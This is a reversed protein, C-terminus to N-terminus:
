ASSPRRRAVRDAVARLSGDIPRTFTLWTGDPSPCCARRRAAADRRQEDGLGADPRAPGVPEPRRDAGRMRATPPSCGSTTAAAAAVELQHGLAAITAGDPLWTPGGFVSRPGGTIPRSARADRRRRRPHGPPLRPRPRAAPQRHVRDAHRRAVLGARRRRGPRRDAADRAGTTSTSWGSTRRGPRLHLGAGNLMYELRDIFRYDSPPPEGPEAETSRAAGSRTRTTRDRRGLDVHRGRAASGDPSWDFDSVGRPLDTLRRAEGGDLPLLHIQVVDEREKTPRSAGPSRRSPRAPGLPLRAHPRGPSFRAHRDHKAGLTLQRPEGRGTPRARALPRPPLRRLRARRDPAHRGGLPRRAVPAARDPDRLRYLDDPRPPRPM